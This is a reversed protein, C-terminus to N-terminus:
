LALSGSIVWGYHADYAYEGRPMAIVSPVVVPHIASTVIMAQARVVRLGSGPSNPMLNVSLARSTCQSPKISSIGADGYETLGPATIVYTVYHPVPRTKYWVWGGISLVVLTLTAIIRRADITLYRFGAALRRGFWSLWFPPQWTWHGLARVGVWSIGTALKTAARQIAASLVRIRGPNTMPNDGQLSIRSPITDSFLTRM